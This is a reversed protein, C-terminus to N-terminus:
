RYVIFNITKEFTGYALKAFYIGRALKGGSVDMSVNGSPSTIPVTKVRAGTVTFLSISGNKPTSTLSWSFDIANAGSFRTRGAFSAERTSVLRGGTMLGVTTPFSFPVSSKVTIEAYLCSFVFALILFSSKM